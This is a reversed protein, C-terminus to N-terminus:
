EQRTVMRDNGLHAVLYAMAEQSAAVRHAALQERAVEALERPADAYCAAAAIEPTAECLKRLSSRPPLDGAEIVLLSDSGTASLAAAISPTAGDTAERLRVVRRGGVLSLAALEDALRAPDAALAAGTLEAVRFPDRLDPCIAAALRDARERVLGAAPGYFLAARTAAPPKRLSEAIRNPALKM